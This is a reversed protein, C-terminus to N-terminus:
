LPQEYYNLGFGATGTATTNGRWRVAVRSGAPIADVPVVPECGTRSAFYSYSSMGSPYWAVATEAGAAGVGIEIEATCDAGVYMARPVSALVVGAAASAILQTWASWTWATGSGAVTIDNAAAPVCKSPKTTTTMSTAAAIPKALFGAGATLASTSYAGGSRARIAVRSGAPIADVPIGLRMGGWSWYNRPGRLRMTAIVAEAGAAGVGVDIEHTNGASTFPKVQISTLVWDADTADELEVWAGSNWSLYVVPVTVLADAPLFFEADACREAAM